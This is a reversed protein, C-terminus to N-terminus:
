GSNCNNMLGQFSTVGKLWDGVYPAVFVPSLWHSQFGLHNATHVVSLEIQHPKELNQEISIQSTKLRATVLAIISLGFDDSGLISFPLESVPELDMASDPAITQFDSEYSPFLSRKQLDTSTLQYQILVTGDDAKQMEGLYPWWVKEVM